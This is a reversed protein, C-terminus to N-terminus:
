QAASSQTPPTTPSSAGAGAKALVPDSFEENMRCTKEDKVNCRRRKEIHELSFARTSVVFKGERVREKDGGKEINHPLRPLNGGFTYSNTKSPLTSNSM